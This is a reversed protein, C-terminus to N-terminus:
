HPLESWFDKLSTLRKAKIDGQTMYSKPAEGLESSIETDTASNEYTFEYEINEYDYHIEMAGAFTEGEALAFLAYPAPFNDVIVQGCKKFVNAPGCIKTEVKEIPSKPEMDLKPSILYVNGNQDRSITISKPDITQVVFFRIEKGDLLGKYSSLDKFNGDEPTISKVSSDSIKKHPALTEIMQPQYLVFGSEEFLRLVSGKLSQMAADQLKIEQPFIIEDWIAYESKCAMKSGIRISKPKPALKSYCIGDETDKVSSGDDLKGIKGLNGLTRCGVSLLFFTTLTCIWGIKLM